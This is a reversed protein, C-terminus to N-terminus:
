LIVAKKGRGQSAFVTHQRIKKIFAQMYKKLNQLVSTFSM